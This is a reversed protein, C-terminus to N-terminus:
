ESYKSLYGIISLIKLGILQSSATVKPFINISISPRLSRRPRLQNLQKRQKTPIPQSKERPKFGERNTPGKKKKKKKSAFDSMTGMTYTSKGRLLNLKGGEAKLKQTVWTHTHTDERNKDISTRISVM